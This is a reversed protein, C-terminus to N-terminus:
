QSIGVEEIEDDTLNADFEIVKGSGPHPMPTGERGCATVFGLAFILAILRTTKMM